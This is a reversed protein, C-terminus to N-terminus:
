CVQEYNSTINMHRENCLYFAVLRSIYKIEKEFKIKKLKNILLILCRKRAETNEHLIHFFIIIIVRKIIHKMTAKSNICYSVRIIKDKLDVFFITDNNHQTYTDIHIFIKTTKNSKTIKKKMKTSFIELYSCNFISM